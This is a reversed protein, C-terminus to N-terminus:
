NIMMMSLLTTACLCMLSSYSLAVDQDQPVSLSQSTHANSVEFGVVLPVSEVARGCRRIKIIREM